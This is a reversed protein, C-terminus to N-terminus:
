IIDNIKLLTLSGRPLEVSQPVDQQTLPPNPIPVWVNSIATNAQFFCRLTHTSGPTIRLNYLFVGDEHFNFGPGSSGAGTGGGVFARSRFYQALRTTGAAGEASSLFQIYNDGNTSAPVSISTLKNIIWDSPLGNKVTFTVPTTPPTSPDSYTTANSFALPLGSILEVDDLLVSCASHLTGNVVVKLRYLGSIRSDNAFVITDDQNTTKTITLLGPPYVASGGVSDVNTFTNQDWSIFSGAWLMRLESHPQPPSPYNLMWGLNNANSRVPGLGNIGYTAQKADTGDYVLEAPVTSPVPPTFNRLILNSEWWSIEFPGPLWNSTVAAFAHLSGLGLGGSPGSGGSVGSSGSAGRVVNNFGSPGSVGSAGSAGRKGRAGPVGSPGTFGAGGTPGSVGSVGTGGAAGASGSIGSIGSQHIFTNVEQNLFWFAVMGTIIMILLLVLLLTFPWDAERVDPQPVLDNQISTAVNDVTESTAAEM